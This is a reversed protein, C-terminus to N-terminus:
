KKGIDLPDQEFSEDAKYMPSMNLDDSVERAYGADFPLQLCAQQELMM